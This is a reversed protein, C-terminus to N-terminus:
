ADKVTSRMKTIEIQGLDDFGTKIIHSAKAEAEDSHKAEVYVIAEDHKVYALDAIVKFLPM